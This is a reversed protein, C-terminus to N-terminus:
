WQSCDVGYIVTNITEIYDGSGYLYKLGYVEVPSGVQISRLLPHREPSSDLNRIIITLSSPPEEAITICLKGNRLATKERLFGRLDCPWKQQPDRKRATWYARCEPRFQCMRCHEAKPSALSSVDENGNEVEKITINVARLSRGATELLREANQKNFHVEVSAGQLPVIELIAPWTGFRHRYLAAYLELQEKYTQKVKRPEGFTGGHLFSGSKYDSLVIGKETDKVCDIYGGVVGDDTEVWLEFGTPQPAKGAAGKRSCEAYHAIKSAKRCARLKRVEFDSISKSLPVHPLRIPSMSMTKEAENILRSWAAEVAKEQRDALQGRGAIELLRHIVFGLEALPSPPLLPTNGSASWVERLLCSRMATYRSPSVRPFRKVKLRAKEM